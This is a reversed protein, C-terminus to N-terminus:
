AASQMSKREKARRRKQAESMRKRAEASVRRRGRRANKAHVPRVSTPTGVATGELAAIARDFRDRESKLETLITDLNM